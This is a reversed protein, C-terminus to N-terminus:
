TMLESQSMPNSKTFRRSSFMEVPHSTHGDVALDALIEGVVPAFKFGHGSFGAALTVRPHHPHPSIVFDYDPTNTYMCAVARLFPGALGPVHEALQARMLEIEDAHIQRDLHDPDAPTGAGRYFAVKVGEDSTGLAPFGYLQLGDGVDWIFVPHTAARYREIDDRARFWYLLQREVQLPLDLSALLQATWAGATLVLHGADYKGQDTKVRVRSRTTEWGLVREQFRLDAGGREARSLHALVSKEPLVFGAQEELVAVTEPGANLTPFRRRIEHSDLVQHPLDWQRASALSGRVPAADAAGMMLGGTITLLGPREQDLDAWLEYARILLPVYAPNEYYAQRIMRSDGHSSGRDHAPSFQELGLVRSGRSSLHAAAASGMGGLGAVIVDYGTM